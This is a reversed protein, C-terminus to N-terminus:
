KTARKTRLHRYFFLLKLPMGDFMLRTLKGQIGDEHALTIRDIMKVGGEVEEFIHEHRWYKMPGEIMLDSFSTATPGEEHRAHWNIPIPGMWLTFKLDGETISKREDERIRAIMPPPVLKSFAAKSDHFAMLKEVTTDMITSKEFVKTTNPKKSKSKM